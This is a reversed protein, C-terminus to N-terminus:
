HPYFRNESISTSLEVERVVVTVVVGVVEVVDLDVNRLTHDMGFSCNNHLQSV